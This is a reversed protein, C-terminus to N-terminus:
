FVLLLKFEIMEGATTCCLVLASKSVSRIMQRKPSFRKRKQVRNETQNKERLNALTIPKPSCEINNPIGTPHLHYSGKGSTHPPPDKIAKARGAKGAGPKRDGVNGSRSILTNRTANIKEGESLRILIWRRRWQEVLKRTFIATSPHFAHTM